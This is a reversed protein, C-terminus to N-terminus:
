RRAMCRWASMTASARSIRTNSVGSSFFFQPEQCYINHDFAHAPMKLSDPGFIAGSGNGVVWNYMMTNARVGYCRM